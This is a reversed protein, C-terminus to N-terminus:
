LEREYYIMQPGDPRGERDTLGASEYLARAARDDTSTTLEFHDAGRERALDMSAELLARGLGHGRHAPAVYLEALYCELGASWLGRRFRLVAAGVSVPALTSFSASDALKESRPGRDHGLLAVLERDRLLEALREALLDVGPSPDGFETNFDHLLRALEAADEPSAERVSPELDRGM